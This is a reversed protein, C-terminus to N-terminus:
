NLYKTSVTIENALEHSLGNDGLLVINLTSSDPTLQWRDAPSTMESDCFERSLRARHAKLSSALSRAGWNDEPPFRVESIHRALIEDKEKTLYSMAVYRRIFFTSNCAIM